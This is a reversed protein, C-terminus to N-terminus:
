TRYSRVAQMEEEAQVGHRPEWTPLGPLGGFHESRMEEWTTLVASMGGEHGPRKWSDAWEQSTPEVTTLAASYTTRRRPGWVTGLWSGPWSTHSLLGAVGGHKTSKKLATRREEEKRRRLRTCQKTIEKLEAKCEEMAEEGVMQMRLLKRRRILGLRGAELDCYEKAKRGVEFHKAGVKQIIETM